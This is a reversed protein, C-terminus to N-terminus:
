EAPKRATATERDPLEVGILQKFCRAWGEQIPDLIDNAAGMQGVARNQQGQPWNALLATTGLGLKPPFEFKRPGRDKPGQKQYFQRRRARSAPYQAASLGREIAVRGAAM